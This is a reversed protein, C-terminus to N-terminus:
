TDNPQVTWVSADNTKVTWATSDNAQVTWTTVPGPTAPYSNQEPLYLLNRVGPRYFVDQAIFAPLIAPSAPPAPYENLEVTQLKRDFKTKFGEALASGPYYGSYYGAPTAPYQNLEVDLRKRSLGSNFNFGSKVISSYPVLAPTAPYSNLEPVDIRSYKSQKFNATVLIM